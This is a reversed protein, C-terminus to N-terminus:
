GSDPPGASRFTKHFLYAALLLLAGDRVLHWAADPKGIPRTSFCGCHVDVGRLANFALAGFFLALLLSGTLVAGPLWRGSLLLAGVLLELWPLALGILGVLADPAIRYNAIIRAFATPHAIKDLSALIFVAGLAM